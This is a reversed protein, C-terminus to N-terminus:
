MTGYLSWCFVKSLYKKFLHEKGPLITWTYPDDGSTILRVESPEISIGLTSGKFPILEALVWPFPHIERIHESLVRRCKTRWSARELKSSRSSTKQEVNM